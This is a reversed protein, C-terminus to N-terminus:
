HKSKGNANDGRDVLTKQKRLRIANYDIHHVPSNKIATELADSHVLDMFEYDTNETSVIVMSGNDFYKVSQVNSTHIRHVPYDTGDDVDCLFWGREGEKFFALYCVKGLCEAHVCTSRRSDINILRYKRSYM